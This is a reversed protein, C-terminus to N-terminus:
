IIILIIIYNILIFLNIFINLFLFYKFKKLKFINTLIKKNKKNLYNFIYYIFTEQRMAYSLVVSNM